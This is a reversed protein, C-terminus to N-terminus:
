FSLKHNWYLIEATEKESDSEGKQPSILLKTLQSQLLNFRQHQDHLQSQMIELEKLRTEVTDSAKHIRKVSELRRRLQSHHERVYTEMPVMLNNNWSNADRLARKFIKRSSNCVSEYFRNTISMQEKFFLTKSEKFHSHKQELRLIEQKFKELRLRRVKFNAIGHDQEFDRTINESLIAIENAQEIAQYLYHNIKEFFSTITKQLTVSTASRTMNLKTTAILTELREESLLKVLKGTEKSYVSRLAQYSKMDAELSSKETQVKLM